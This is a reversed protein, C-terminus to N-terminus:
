CNLNYMVFLFNPKVNTLVHLNYILQLYKISCILYLFHLDLNIALFDEMQQLPETFATEYQNICVNRDFRKIRIKKEIIYKYNM